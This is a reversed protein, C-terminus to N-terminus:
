KWLFIFAVWSSLFMYIWFGTTIPLLVLVLKHNFYLISNVELYMQYCNLVPHLNSYFICIWSCFICCSYEILICQNNYHSKLISTIAWQHQLIILLYLIISKIPLLLVIFHIYWNLRFLGYFKKWFQFYMPFRM